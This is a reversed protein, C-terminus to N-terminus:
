FKAPEHPALSELLPMIEAIAPTQAEDIFDILEIGLQWYGGGLPICQRLHGKAFLADMDKGTTDMPPVLFGVLLEDARFPQNLILAVGRESLDKTLATTAEAVVPREDEWPALLVPLVRIYRKAIRDEENFHTLNPTTLDVLRTLLTQLELRKKRRTFSFM